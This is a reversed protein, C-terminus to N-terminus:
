RHFILFKRGAFNILITSVIACLYSSTTEAGFFRILLDGAGTGLFFAAFSVLFFLAVEKHVQHKGGTFVYRVNLVYAVTNSAMFSIIKGLWYNTLRVQEGIASPELHLLEVVLDTETLSPLLTIAVAYFLTVDVLFAVGGFLAYKCFQLLPHNKNNLLEKLLKMGRISAYTTESPLFHICLISKMRTKAYKHAAGKFKSRM